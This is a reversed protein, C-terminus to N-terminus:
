LREAWLVAIHDIDQSFVTSLRETILSQEWTSGALVSVGCCM